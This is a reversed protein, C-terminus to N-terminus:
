YWFVPELFYCHVRRALVISSTPLHCHLSLYRHIVICLYLSLLSYTIFLLHPSGPSGRWRAFPFKSSSVCFYWPWLSNVKWPTYFYSLQLSCSFDNFFISFFVLFVYFDDLISYYIRASYIFFPLPSLELLVFSLSLISLYLSLFYKSFVFLSVTLDDSEWCYSVGDSEFM